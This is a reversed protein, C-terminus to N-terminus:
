ETHIILIEGAKLVTSLQPNWAKLQDVTCRYQRSISFLTEGMKVTHKLPPSPIRKKRKRLVIERKNKKQVVRRETTKKRPLKRKKLIQNELLNIELLTM